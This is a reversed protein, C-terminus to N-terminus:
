KRDTPTWQAAGKTRLILRYIRLQSMLYPALRPLAGIPLVDQGHDVWAMIVALSLIALDSVCVYFPSAAFGFWLLMLCLVLVTSTMFVLASLPPVALDLGLAIQDLSREASRQPDAARFIRIHNPFSRAGLSATPDCCGKKVNSLREDSRRGPLLAATRRADRTRRRSGYGRRHQRLRPKATSITRWPFAMGSGTLQCPLGLALLGLPRVFNKVRWAFKAVDYSLATEAPARMIYNAQVTASKARLERRPALHANPSIRCDADVIVVIDPPDLSLHAVGASLAYGKGRREPDRREFVDAGEARAVQATDDSCNDAVVLLRDTVRLQSRADTLTPIIGASENHAPVLVAVRPWDPTSPSAAGVRAAARKAALIEIFLTVAAMSLWCLVVIMAGHALAAAFTLFMSVAADIGSM